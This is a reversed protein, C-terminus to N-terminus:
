KRIVGIGNDRPELRIEEYQYAGKIREWLIPVDIPTKSLGPRSKWNIDHFGVLMRVMPGYSEWDATCGALTHDGDIFCADFPGLNRVWNYTEVERSSQLRLHADYGKANLANICGELHRQSELKKTRKHPTPMDVSVIRSGTPMVHAARWLAGGWQSGIELYSKAGSRRLIDLWWEYEKANQSYDTLFKKGGALEALQADTLVKPYHM